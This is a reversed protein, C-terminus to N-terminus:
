FSRGGGGHSHGSRSVHHGGGSGSGSSHNQEIKRSTTTTRLYIDARNNLRFAGSKAYTRGDASMKTGAQFAMIGVTVGGIALAILLSIFPNQLINKKEDYRFITESYEGSNEGSAPPSQLYIEAADLFAISARYYDGDPMYEMVDDLATDLRYESLYEEAKGSTSIWVERNDMDILFIAYDGYAKNYGFANDDGFDDAFATSTKGEADETTLIYLETKVKAETELCLVELEAAEEGTFLCAYDFVRQKEENALPQWSIFFLLIAALILSGAARGKKM